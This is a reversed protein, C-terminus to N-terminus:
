SCKGHHTLVILEKDDQEARKIERYLSEVAERHFRNVDPSTLLTLKEKEEERSSRLKIRRFDNIKYEYQLAIKEDDDARPYHVWMTSGFLRMGPLVEQFEICENQLFHVKNRYRPTDRITSAILEHASDIDSGYYEHNGTIVIIHEFDPLM